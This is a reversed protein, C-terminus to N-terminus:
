IEVARFFVKILAGYPVLSPLNICSSTKLLGDSAKHNWKEASFLHHCFFLNESDSQYFIVSLGLFVPLSQLKSGTHTKVDLNGHFGNPYHGWLSKVVQRLHSQAASRHWLPLPCSERERHPPSFTCQAPKDVTQHPWLAPVVWQLARPPIHWRGLWKDGGRALHEATCHGQTSQLEDSNMCHLPPPWLVKLGLRAEALHSFLEKSASSPLLGANVHM